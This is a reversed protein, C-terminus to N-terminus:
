AAIVRADSTLSLRTAKLILAAIAQPLALPLRRWPHRFKGRQGGFRRQGWTAGRAAGCPPATKVLMFVPQFTPLRWRVAFALAYAVSNREKLTLRLMAEPIGFNVACRRRPCCCLALGFTAVVFFTRQAYHAAGGVPRFPRHMLRQGIRAALCQLEKGVLFQGATPAHAEAQWGHWGGSLAASRWALFLPGASTRRPKSSTDRCLRKSDQQRLSALATATIRASPSVMAFGAAVSATALTNRLMPYGALKTRGCRAMRKRSPRQSAARHGPLWLQLALHAWSELRLASSARTFSAVLTISGLVADLVSFMVELQRKGCYKGLLLGTTIVPIPRLGRYERLDNHEHLMQRLSSPRLQPRSAAGPKRVRGASRAIARWDAGPLQVVFAALGEPVATAWRGVSHRRSTCLVVRKDLVLLLRWCRLDQRSTARYQTGGSIQGAVRRKERLTTDPHELIGLRATSLCLLSHLHSDAMALGAPRWRAIPLHRAVQATRWPARLREDWVVGFYLSM